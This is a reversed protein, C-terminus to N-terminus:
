SKEKIADIIGTPMKAQKEPDFSWGFRKAIGVLACENEEILWWACDNKQCPLSDYEEEFRMLPCIKWEKMRRRTQSHALQGEIRKIRSELTM